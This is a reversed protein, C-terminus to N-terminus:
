EIKCVAVVFVQKESVEKDGMQPWYGESVRRIEWRLNRGTDLVVLVNGTNLLKGVTKYGQVSIDDFIDM